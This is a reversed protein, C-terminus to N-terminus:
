RSKRFNHGGDPDVELYVGSFDRMVMTDLGDTCTLTSPLLSNPPRPVFAGDLDIHHDDPSFKWHGECTMAGSSAPVYVERYTHDAALTLTTKSDPLVLGYSGVLASESSVPLCGLAFAPTMLLLVGLARRM